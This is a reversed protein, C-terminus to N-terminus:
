GVLSHYPLQALHAPPSSPAACEQHSCQTCVLVSIVRGRLPKPQSPLSPCGSWALPRCRGPCAFPNVIEVAAPEFDRRNGTVVVLGPALATAAILSDKVPMSRWCSRLGALLEAWRLGTNADFPM